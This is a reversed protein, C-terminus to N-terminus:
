LFVFLFPCFSFSFTFLFCPAPVRQAFFFVIFFVHSRRCHRFTGSGVVFLTMRNRRQVHWPDEETAEQQQHM